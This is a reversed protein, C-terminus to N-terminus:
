EEKIPMKHGNQTKKRKSGYVSFLGSFLGTAGYYDSFYDIPHSFLGSNWLGTFVRPYFPSPSIPFDKVGEGFEGYDCHVAKKSQAIKDAYPCRNGDKHHVYVRRNLKKVKDYTDDSVLEEMRNVSDGACNCAEPIPLGFPCKKESYNTRLIALKKM